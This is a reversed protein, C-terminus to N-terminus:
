ELGMNMVVWLLKKSHVFWDCNCQNVAKVLAVAHAMCACGLPTPHIKIM